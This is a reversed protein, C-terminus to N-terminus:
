AETKAEDTKKSKRSKRPKKESKNSEDAAAEKVEDIKKVDVLLNVENKSSKPANLADEKFVNCPFMYNSGYNPDDMDQLGVEKLIARVEAATAHPHAVLYQDVKRLANLSDM